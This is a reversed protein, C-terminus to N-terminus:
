SRVTSLLRPRHVAQRRSPGAKWAMKGLLNRQERHDLRGRASEGEEASDANAVDRFADSVRRM